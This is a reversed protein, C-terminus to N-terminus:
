IKIKVYLENILNLKDKKNMKKILKFFYIRKLPFKIKKKM